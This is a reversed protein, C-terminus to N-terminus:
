KDWITLRMYGTLLFNNVPYNDADLNKAANTSKRFRIPICIHLTKLNTYHNNDLILEFDLIEEDSFVTDAPQQIVMIKEIM